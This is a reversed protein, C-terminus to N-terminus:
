TVLVSVTLLNICKRTPSQVTAADSETYIDGDVGVTANSRRSEVIGSKGSITADLIAAM